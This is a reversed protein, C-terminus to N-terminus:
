KRNIPALTWSELYDIRYLFRDVYKFIFIVNIIVMKFVQASVILFSFKILVNNIAINYEHKM